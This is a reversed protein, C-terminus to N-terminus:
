GICTHAIFQTLWEVCLSLFVLGVTIYASGCPTCGGSFWATAWINCPLGDVEEDHTCCRLSEGREVNDFLSTTRDEGCLETTGCGARVKFNGEIGENNRKEYCWGSTCYVSNRCETQNIFNTEDDVDGCQYCLAQCQYQSNIVSNNVCSKVDCRPPPDIVPFDGCELGITSICEVDNGVQKGDKLIYGNECQLCKFQNSHKECEVCKPVEESCKVCSSLDNLFFGPQCRKCHQLSNCSACDSMCALCEWKNTELAYGEQCDSCVFRLLNKDYHCVSCGSPCSVCESGTSYCELCELCTGDQSCTQCGDPCQKCGTGELVFGKSCVSCQNGVCYSCGEPCKVCAGDEMYYGSICESCHLDSDCKDCNSSCAVCKDAILTYGSLCAGSCKGEDDCDAACSSLCTSCTKDNEEEGCHQCNKDDDVFMGEVCNSCENENECMLCPHSCKLCGGSSEDLYYGDECELCAEYDDSCMLCHRGSFRSRECFVGGLGEIENYLGYGEGCHTCIVKGELWACAKCDLPCALCEGIDSNLVYRDKCRKCVIEGREMGCEDCTVSQLTDGKCLTCVGGELYYGAECKRCEQFISGQFEVKDNGNEKCNVPCRLCESHVLCYGEACREILVADGSQSCKKVISSSWPCRECRTELKGTEADIERRTYYALDEDKHYYNCDQCPEQDKTLYKENVPRKGPACKIEGDGVSSCTYESNDGQKIVGGSGCSKIVPYKRGQDVCETADRPCPKSEGSVMDKYRSSGLKECQRESNLVHEETCGDCVLDGGHGADYHCHSCYSTRGWCSQCEWVDDVPM